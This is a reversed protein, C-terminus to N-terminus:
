PERVSGTTDPDDVVDRKADALTGTSSETAVPAPRFVSRVDAVADGATQSAPQVGSVPAKMCSPDYLVCNLLLAEMGVRPELPTRAFAAPQLLLLSLSLVCLRVPM